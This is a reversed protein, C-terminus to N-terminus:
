CYARWAGIVEGRERHLFTGWLCLPQAQSLLRAASRREARDSRASQRGAALRIPWSRLRGTTQRNSRGERALRVVRLESTTLAEVGSIWNRRPRVGAIRLEQRACAILPRAGSRARCSITVWAPATTMAATDLPPEELGEPGRPIGAAEGASIPADSLSCASLDRAVVLRSSRFLM